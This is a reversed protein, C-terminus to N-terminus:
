AQALGDFFDIADQLTAISVIEISKRPATLASEYNDAPVLIYEAGAAEAGVVKQRIGGIPGVAGDYAITGTGAVIHGQTMEGPTLTDIIALTHMMGASPGGVDGAEITLPFPPESLEGVTIGIMAGGEPDDREALEVQLTQPNGDRTVGIDIVDGPELGELLDTLDTSRVIETGNFSDVSDGIELVEAAPIDPVLDTILVDTPIMEYGLHELAVTIARTQSDDMQQLVRKRYDEDTEDPQRFAEKPVLDISPDVGAIMAEFLNVEQSVVTLMLLEGEPPFTDVEGAVIADAADSVPGSSFALYPLELNWVGLVLAGVLFLAGVVYLPWSSPREKRGQLPLHGSSGSPTDKQDEMM